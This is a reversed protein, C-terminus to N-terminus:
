RPIRLCYYVGDAGSATVTEHEHWEAGSAAGLSRGLDDELEVFDSDPGPLRTMLVHWFAPACASCLDTEEWSCAQGTRAICQRCDADTCGCVRCTPVPAGEPDPDSTLRRISRMIDANLAEQEPTDAPVVLGRLLRVPVERGAVFRDVRVQLEDARRRADMLLPFWQAPPHEALHRGLRQEVEVKAQHVWAERMGAPSTGLADALGPNAAPIVQGDTIQENCIPCSVAQVITVEVPATM